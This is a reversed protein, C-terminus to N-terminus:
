AARAPPMGIAEWRELNEAFREVQRLLQNQRLLLANAAAPGAFPDSHSVSVYEGPSAMLSVLQSDIGGMGGVRFGGGSAFGPFSWGALDALSFVYAGADLVPPVANDNVPAPAPAQVAALGQMAAALESMAEALTKMSKDLGLVADVQANLASLQARAADAQSQSALAADGLAAKVLALDRRAAFANPAATRSADLFARAADSLQALAGSDGSRARASVALFDARLRVLRAAPSGDLGTDDLGARVDRLADAFAQFKDITTQLAQAERDRAASVADRAASVDDAFDQATWIAAQLGHLSADMASLEERRRIALAGSKDGLIDMLEAQKAALAAADRLAHVQRLLARNTEDTAALEDARVAALAGAADGSLGMLEIELARKQNAIALAKQAAEEAAKRAAEARGQKKAKSGGFLGGFLGAIGGVVAGVATGIGPIISGLQAGAAVGSLASGGVGGVFPAAAGAIAGVKGGTDLKAWSAKIREFARVVGVVATQWDGSKLAHLIGGVADSLEWSVETMAEFADIWAPRQRALEDGIEGLLKPTDEFNDNLAEVKDTVKPAFIREVAERYAEAGIAGAAWAKGLTLLKGRLEAAAKEQPTALDDLVRGLEDKLEEAARKAEDRAKKGADAIKGGAKSMPLALEDSIKPAAAVSAGGADRWVKGIDAAAKRVDAAADKGAAGLTAFAGEFNGARAQGFAKAGAAVSFAMNKWVTGMIIGGTVLTRVTGILVQGALDMLRTDKAAGVFLESVTALTPALKAALQTTVGQGVSKLRTLNDNFAEAAKTTKDDLTLGLADAEAGMAAIGAKGENLLPILDAGSKGFLQVALQTKAAGDAMGAFKGAVDGLVAETPRLQGGAGTVSIGLRRFGEAATSGADAGAAVMNVSLKKLGTGLTELSVDSLKAAYDLRSLAAVPVGFKQAAKGMEDARKLASSVAGGLAVAAAAMAAGAVAVGAAALGVGKGFGSLGGQARSLGQHFQASDLGLSVRLAGITAKGAAM